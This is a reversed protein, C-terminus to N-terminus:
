RVRPRTLNVGIILGIILAILLLIVITSLEVTLSM